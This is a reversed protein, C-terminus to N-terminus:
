GLLKKLDSVKETRRVTIRTAASPTMGFEVLIAKYQELLKAAISVHPIQQVYGSPTECVYGVENIKDVAKRRMAFVVCAEALLNANAINLLGAGRAAPELVKDWHERAVPDFNLFAPRPADGAFQPEDDNLARQGPNGELVKLATPKPKRGATSM